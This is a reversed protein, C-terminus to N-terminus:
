LASRRWKPLMMGVREQYDVYRKGFRRVLIYEEAKAAELQAPIILLPIMAILSLLSFFFGIAVISLGLYIPHRVFRYPGTLALKQGEIHRLSWFDLILGITMLGMGIIRIADEFPPHILLATYAPSEGQNLILLTGYIGMEVYLIYFALRGLVILTTVPIQDLHHEFWYFEYRNKTILGILMLLLFVGVLIAPLM